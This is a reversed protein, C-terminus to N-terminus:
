PLTRPPPMQGRTSSAGNEVSAVGGNILMTDMREDEFMKENQSTKYRAAEGGQKRCYLNLYEQFRKQKKFFEARKRCADSPFRVKDLADLVNQVGPSVVVGCTSDVTEPVATQNYTLVPTGCALAEVTTMGQTEERSLNLYVDAMTYIEALERVSGTRELGLVNAPLRKIEQRNLGVMVIRSDPDLLGALEMFDSIGKRIGWGNAVGLLVRKKELGYLQRFNGPTPKFQELDIGSPIVEVPYEGLFSRKVEEALWHSPTVLTLNPVGVFAARKRRFNGASDGKRICKPYQEPQPCGGSCDATEWRGCGAATYYACHGTYSWCDHLTWVVPKGAKKLYDFLLEINLYYGHINHLQILDPDYERVWDLFRATTQKSGFGHADFLRTAVGHLCVDWDNGIRVAIERCFEPPTDRGYAIRCDHGEAKLIDALGVAIRGTSGTGCVTNIQLIKM